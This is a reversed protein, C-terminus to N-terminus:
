GRAAPRDADGGDASPATTTTTAKGSPATSDTSALEQVVVLDPDESRSDSQVSRATLAGAASVVLVLGVAAVAVPRRLMGGRHGTPELTTETLDPGVNAGAVAGLAAAAFGTEGRAAPVVGARPARHHRRDLDM